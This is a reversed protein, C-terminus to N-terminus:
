PQNWLLTMLLFFGIIVLSFLILAIFSLTKWIGKKAYLAFFWSLLYTIILIQYLYNLTFDFKQAFFITCISTLLFFLSTIGSFERM